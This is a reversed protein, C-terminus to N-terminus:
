RGAGGLRYSRTLPNGGYPPIGRGGPVGSRPRSQLQAKRARVLCFVASFRAQGSHNRLGSLNARNCTNEIRQRVTAAVTAASNCCNASVRLFRRSEVAAAVTAVTAVIM